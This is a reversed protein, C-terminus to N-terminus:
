VCGLVADVGPIIILFLTAVSSVKRLSRDPRLRWAGDNILSGAGWRVGGRSGRGCEPWRGWLWGGGCLWEGGSQPMRSGQEGGCFWEVGLVSPRVAIGHINMMLRKNNKCSCFNAVAIYRNPSPVRRKPGPNFCMRNPEWWSGVPVSTVGRSRPLVQHLVLDGVQRGRETDMQVFSRCQHRMGVGSYIMSTHGDHGKGGRWGQREGSGSWTHTRLPRHARGEHSSSWWDEWRKGLNEWLWRSM